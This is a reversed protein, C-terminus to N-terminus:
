SLRDDHVLRGDDLVAAGGRWRVDEDDFVDLGGVHRIALRQRRVDVVVTGNPV